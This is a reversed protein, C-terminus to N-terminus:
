KPEFNHAALPPTGPLKQSGSRRSASRRNAVFKSLKHDSTPVFKEFIALFSIYRAQTSGALYMEKTQVQLEMMISNKKKMRQSIKMIMSQQM